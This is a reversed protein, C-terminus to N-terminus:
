AVWSPELLALFVQLYCDELGCTGPEFGPPRALSRGGSRRGTSARTSVVASQLASGPPTPMSFWESSRKTAPWSWRALPAAPMLFPSYVSRVLAM